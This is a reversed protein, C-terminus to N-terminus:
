LEHNDTKKNILLLDAMSKARVCKGEDYDKQAKKAIKALEDESIMNQEMDLVSKLYSSVTMGAKKARKLLKEKDKQPLSITLISRMISTTM